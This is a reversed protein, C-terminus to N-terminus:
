WELAGASVLYPSGASLGGTELGGRLSAFGMVRTEKVEEEVLHRKVAM